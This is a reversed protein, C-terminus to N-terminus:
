FEVYPMPDVAVSNIRVEYHLHPGTSKGTNGSLAIQQGKKVCQAQGVLQRSLHMFVFTMVGSQIHLHNGASPSMGNVIVQGDAPCYVPTGVPAGIDVGNHMKMVKDIPHLRMGFGSGIKGEIVKM